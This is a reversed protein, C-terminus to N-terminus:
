LQLYAESKQYEEFKLIKPLEKIYKEIEKKDTIFALTAYILKEQENDKHKKTGKGFLSKFFGM